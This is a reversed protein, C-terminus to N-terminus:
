RPMLKVSELMAYQAAFRTPPSVGDDPLRAIFVRYDHLDGIVKLLHTVDLPKRLFAVAGSKYAQFQDNAGEHATLIVVPIHRLRRDAYMQALVAHGDITPLTLDLLVLDIPSQEPNAWTSHLLDLATRGDCVVSLTNGVKAREFARRTMEADHASGEILLIHAARTGGFEMM